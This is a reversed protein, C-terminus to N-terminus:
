VVVPYRDYSSVVGEDRGEPNIYQIPIANSLMCSQIKQSHEIFHALGMSVTRSYVGCEFRFSLKQFNIVVRTLHEPYIRLAHKRGCWGHIIANGIGVAGADIPSAERQRVNLSPERM